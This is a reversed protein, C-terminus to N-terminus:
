AFYFLQRILAILMQGTPKGDKTEAADPLDTTNYLPVLELDSSTSGVDSDDVDTVDSGGGGVVASGGDGHDVHSPVTEPLIM